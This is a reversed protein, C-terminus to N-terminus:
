IKKIPQADKCLSPKQCLGEQQGVGPLFKTADLLGSNFLLNKVSYKLIM